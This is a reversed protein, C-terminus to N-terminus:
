IYRNFCNDLNINNFEHDINYNPGKKDWNCEIKNNFIHLVFLIM